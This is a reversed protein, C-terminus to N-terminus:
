EVVEVAYNDRLFLVAEERTVRHSPHIRGSLVRRRKVRYGPRALSIAVDMGFVGIEPNYRQGEFDTHDTVGFSVLGEENFSRYPLKREKVELARKLFGQAKEGRLTVKIGIPANKRLAWDRVSDKALTRVPKQNVLSEMVKEAKALKEGAEGLGMNVTVKELVVQRMPQTEKKVSVVHVHEGGKADRAM